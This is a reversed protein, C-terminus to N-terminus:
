EIWVRERDANDYVRDLLKNAYDTPTIVGDGEPINRLKDILDRPFENHKELIDAVTEMTKRVSELDEKDNLLHKIKIHKKWQTM